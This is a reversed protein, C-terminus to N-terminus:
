WFPLMLEVAMNRQERNKIWPNSMNVVYGRPDDSGPWLPAHSCRHCRSRASRYPHSHTGQAVPQEVPDWGSFAQFNHPTGYPYTQFHPIGGIIAM